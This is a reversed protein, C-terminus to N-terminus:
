TAPDGRVECEVMKDHKCIQDEGGEDGYLLDYYTGNREGLQAAAVAGAVGPGVDRDGRRREGAAAVADAFRAPCPGGVRGHVM